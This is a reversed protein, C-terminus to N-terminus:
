DKLLEKFLITTNTEEEFNLNKNSFVTIFTGKLDKVLKKMEFIKSLLDSEKNKRIAVDCICFPNVKIPLREEFSIDYFNFQTFTGARFGIVDSYGMSFDEDFEADTLSRYSYPINLRFYRLRIRKVPRNILETLRLREDKLTNLDDVGKYSSMLSVICYDAVSKVLSRFQPNNYSINKDYVSYESMLFFFITEINYTKYLEILEKFNDYPDKKFRMLVILRYYVQKFQLSFIDSFAGGISRMIGKKRFNYASAVDILNIQMFKKEPFVIDPFKELLLKKFKVIWIDVVPLKLFDNKYAISETYPYRNHHDKVHPLYEEYRSLLYFSAAFIDFPLNSRENTQFFCPVGEWKSINVEFDSIGQEFLLNNSMVFFENQLAQKTYTLKPGSHSIFDELTTTFNVDILLMKNFIHKMIYSFRPTIKHTFILFM